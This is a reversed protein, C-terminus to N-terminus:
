ALYFGLFTVIQLLRAFDHDALVLMDFTRLDSYFYLALIALLMFVSGLFTYIFFKIAAYERRPGGWIGILFYMPVIVVDWFIYFLIFDLASFVGLMGVDLLLLLAMYEKMRKFHWSAPVCLLTLLATLVLLPRSIGDVGLLYQIGVSPVWAVREIFQMGSKGPDFALWAAISLVTPIAASVLGIGRILNIREKDVAFILAAGLLPTFIILTLIPFNAPLEFLSM